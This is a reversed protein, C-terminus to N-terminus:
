DPLARACVSLDNCSLYSEWHSVHLHSVQNRHPSYPMISIEGLASKTALLWSELWSKELSSEPLTSHVIFDPHTFYWWLSHHSKMDTSCLPRTLGLKLVVSLPQPALSARVFGCQCLKEQSCQPFRKVAEHPDSLHWDCFYTVAHTQTGLDGVKGKM